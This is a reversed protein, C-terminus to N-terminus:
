DIIRLTLEIVYMILIIQFKGAFNIDFYDNSAEKAEKCNTELIIM